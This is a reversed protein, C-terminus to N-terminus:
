DDGKYYSEMAKQNKLFYIYDTGKEIGQGLKKASFLTCDSNSEKTLTEILRKSYNGSNIIGFDTEKKTGFFWYESDRYQATFSCVKDKFETSNNVIDAFWNSKLQCHLNGYHLYYNGTNRLKSFTTFNLALNKEDRLETAKNFVLLHFFPYDTTFYKEFAAQNEAVIKRASEIKTMISNKDKGRIDMGLGTSHTKKIPKLIDLVQKVVDPQQGKDQTMKSLFVETDRFGYADISIFIIKESDPLSANFERLQKYFEVAEKSPGKGIWSVDGTQIYKNIYYGVQFDYEKIYTRVGNNYYLYRFLNFHRTENSSVNHSEGDFFVSYNNLQGNLFQYDSLDSEYNITIDVGQGFAFSTLLVLTLVKM